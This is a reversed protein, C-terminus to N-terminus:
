VPWQPTRRRTLFQVFQDIEFQREPTVDVFALGYENGGRPLGKAWKIEAFFQHPEERDPLAVELELRMGVQHAAPARMRLGGASINTVSANRWLDDPIDAQRYRIATAMMARPDRRREGESM